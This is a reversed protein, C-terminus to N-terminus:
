RLPPKLTTRRRAAEGSGGVPKRAALPDIPRDFAVGTRGQTSWAVRGPVVGVGRVDIEVRTGIDLDDPLEAMLGGESLNRVRVQRTEADGVRRFGAMLFLSDRAKSRNSGADDTDASPFPDHPISDM